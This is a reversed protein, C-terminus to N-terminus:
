DTLVTRVGPGKKFCSSVGEVAVCSLAPGLAAPGEVDLISSAFVGVLALKADNGDCFSVLAPSAEDDAVVESNLFPAFRSLECYEM